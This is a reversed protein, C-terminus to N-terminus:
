PVKCVGCSALGEKSQERALVLTKECSGSNWEGPGKIDMPESHDHRTGKRGSLNLGEADEASAKRSKAANVRHHQAKCCVVPMNLGALQTKNVMDVAEKTPLFHLVERFENQEAASLNYWFRTSAFLM